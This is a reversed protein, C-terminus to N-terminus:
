REMMRLIKSCVWILVVETGGFHAGEAGDFFDDMWGSNVLIVRVGVGGMWVV